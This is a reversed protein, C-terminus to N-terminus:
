IKYTADENAELYNYTDKKEHSRYLHVVDLM